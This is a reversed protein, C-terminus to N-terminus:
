SKASSAMKLFAFSNVVISRSSGNIMMMSSADITADFIHSSASAAWLMSAGTLVPCAEFLADRLEERTLSSKGIVPDYDLMLIGPGKRYQFHKRDRAIKGSHNHLDSKRVIGVADHETVGYTLCENPKLDLLLRSLGWLDSVSEKTASGEALFAQTSKVLNCHQDLAYQKTLIGKCNCLRTLQIMPTPANM